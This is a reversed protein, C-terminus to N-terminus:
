GRQLEKEGGDLARSGVAHGWEAGQGQKDGKDAWSSIETFSKRQDGIDRPVSDM